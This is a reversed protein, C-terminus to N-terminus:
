DHNAEANKIALDAKTIVEKDGELEGNGDSICSYFRQRMDKLAELLEGNSEKLRDREAATEPAAVILWSNAEAEEWAHSLKKVTAIIYGAKMIRITSLGRDIIWPKPTHKTEQMM